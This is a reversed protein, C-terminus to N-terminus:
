CSRAPLHALFCILDRKLTLLSLPCERILMTHEETKGCMCEFCVYVNEENIENGKDKRRKGKKKREGGEKKREVFM